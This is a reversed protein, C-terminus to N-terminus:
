VHSCAHPHLCALGYLYYAPPRLGLCFTLTCETLPHLAHLLAHSRVLARHSPFLLRLFPPGVPWIGFGVTTLTVVM